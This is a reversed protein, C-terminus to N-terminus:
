IKTRVDGSKINAQHERLKDRQRNAELKLM